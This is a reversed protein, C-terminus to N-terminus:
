APTGRALLAIFIALSVKAAIVAPPSVGNFRRFEVHAVAALMRWCQMRTVLCLDGPRRSLRQQRQFLRDAFDGPQGKAKAFQTREVIVQGQIEVMASQRHPFPDDQVAVHHIFIGARRRSPQYLVPVGVSRTSVAVFVIDIKARQVRIETATPPCQRILIPM